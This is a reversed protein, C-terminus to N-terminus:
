HPYYLFNEKWRDGNIKQALEMIKKTIYEIVKIDPKFISVGLLGNKDASWWVEDYEDNNLIEKIQEVASDILRKINEDLHNWNPGTPIGISRPWKNKNYPSDYRYPRLLANGGGAELDNYMKWQMLNENYIYLRKKDKENKIMYSFDGKKGIIEKSFVSGYFITKKNNNM